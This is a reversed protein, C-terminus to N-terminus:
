GRPDRCPTCRPDIWDYRQAILLIVLSKIPISSVASDAYPPRNGM